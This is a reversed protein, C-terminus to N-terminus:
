DCGEESDALRQKLLEIEKMAKDLEMSVRFLEGLLWRMILDDM